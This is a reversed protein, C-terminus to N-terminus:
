IPLPKNLIERYYFFIGCLIFVVVFFIVFLYNDNRKELEKAVERVKPTTPKTIPDPSHVINTSVKVKKEYLLKKDVKTEASNKPIDLELKVSLKDPAVEQKKVENEKVLDHDPKLIITFDRDEEIELEQTPKSILIDMDPYELDNGKPFVQELNENNTKAIIEKEKNVNVKLVEPMKPLQIFTTIDNSEAVKATILTIDPYELDDSNPIVVQGSNAETVQLHPKSTNFSTTIEKNNQHVLVSKSESVPNFSQPMDGYLYKDVLETEKLSFWYGNGSCVEDTFGISGKQIFELLKQKSVPGLIQKQYTRIVWNREM